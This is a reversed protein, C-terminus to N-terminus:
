EYKIEWTERDQNFAPFTEDLWDLSTIVLIKDVVQFTTKILNGEYDYVEITKAEKELDELSSGINNDKLWDNFKDRNIRNINNVYFEKGYYTSM